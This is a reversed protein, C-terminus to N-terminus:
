DNLEWYKRCILFFHLLIQTFRTMKLVDSKSIIFLSRNVAEKACFPDGSALAGIVVYSDDPRDGVGVDILPKHAVGYIQLGAPLYLEGGDSIQLWEKFAIPLIFGNKKEFEEIQRDSVPEMYEMRGKGALEEGTKTV